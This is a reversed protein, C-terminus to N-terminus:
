TCGHSVMAYEAFPRNVSMSAVRSRPLLFSGSSNRSRVYMEIMSCRMRTRHDVFFVIHISGCGM